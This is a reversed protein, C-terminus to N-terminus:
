VLQVDVNTMPLKSKQFQKRCKILFINNQVWKDTQIAGTEKLVGSRSMVIEQLQLTLTLIDLSFGRFLKWFVRRFNRRLELCLKELGVTMM